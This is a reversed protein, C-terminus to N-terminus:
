AYRKIKNSILYHVVNYGMIHWGNVTTLWNMAPLDILDSLYGQYLEDKHKYEVIPVYVHMTNDSIMLVEDVEEDTKQHPQVEIVKAIRYFETALLHALMEINYKYNNLNGKQDM